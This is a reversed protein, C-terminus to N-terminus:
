AEPRCLVPLLKSIEEEMIPKLTGHCINDLNKGQPAQHEGRRHDVLMQRTHTRFQCQDCVFPGESPKLHEKLFHQAVEDTRSQSFESKVYQFMRILLSSMTLVGTVAVDELMPSYLWGVQPGWSECCCSSGGTLEPCVLETLLPAERQRCLWRVQSVPNLKKDRHSLQIKLSPTEALVCYYGPPRKM